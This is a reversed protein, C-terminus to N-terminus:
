LQRGAPVAGMWACVGANCKEATMFTGECAPACTDCPWSCGGGAAAPGSGWVHGQAPGRNGDMASVGCGTGGCGREFAEGPKWGEPCRIHNWLCESGRVTDDLLLHLSLGLIGSGQHQREEEM